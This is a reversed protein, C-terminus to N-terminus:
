QRRGVGSRKVQLRERRDASRHAAAVDDLFQAAGPAAVRQDRHQHRCFLAIGGSENAAPNPDAQAVPKGGAEFDGSQKTPGFAAAAEGGHRAAAVRIAAVDDDMDDLAPGVDRKDLPPQRRIKGVAPRTLVERFL